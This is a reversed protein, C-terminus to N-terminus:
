QDAEYDNLFEDAEPQILDTISQGRARTCLSWAVTAGGPQLFYGSRPEPEPQERPEDLANLIARPMGTAPTGDYHLALARIAELRAHAAQDEAERRDREREWEDRERVLQAVQDRMADLEDVAPATHRALADAVSAAVTDTYTTVEEPTAHRPMLEAIAILAHLIGVQPELEVACGNRMFGRAHDMAQALHNTTM